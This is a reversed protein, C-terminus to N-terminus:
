DWWSSPLKFVPSPASLGRPSLFASPKFRLTRISSHPSSITLLGALYTSTSCVRLSADICLAPQPFRVMLTHIGANLVVGGLGVPSEYRLAAWGLIMVGAHHYTQLTSSKKGRALIIFTDVVEYFKSM